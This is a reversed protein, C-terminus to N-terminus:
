KPNNVARIQELLLPEDWERKGVALHVMRGEQNIVFTTPLMRASWAEMVKSDTDLLLPFHVPTDQLFKLTSKRTEGVGIGILAINHKALWIAARQISPMEARCPQCWSAWFNVVLVRGKYDSLAHQKGNIDQLIFEPAIPHIELRTLTKNPPAASVTSAILLATAAIILYVSFQNKYFM